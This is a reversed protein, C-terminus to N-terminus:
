EESTELGISAIVPDPLVIRIGDQRRFGGHSCTTGFHWCSKVSPRPASRAFGNGLVVQIHCILVPLPRGLGVHLQMTDLHTLRM